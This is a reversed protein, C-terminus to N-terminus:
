KISITEPRGLIEFNDIEVRTYPVRGRHSYQASTLICPDGPRFAAQHHPDIHHQKLPFSFPTDSNPRAQLIALGQERTLYLFAGDSLRRAEFLRLTAQRADEQTSPMFINSSNSIYINGHPNINTVM